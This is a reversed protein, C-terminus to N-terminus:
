FYKDASGKTDRHNRSQDFWHILNYSRKWRSALKAVASMLTSLLSPIYVPEQSKKRNVDYQASQMIGSMEYSLAELAEYMASIHEPKCRADYSTSLYEGIVWVKVLYWYMYMLFIITTALLMHLPFPLFKCVYLIEVYKTSHSDLTFRMRQWTHNGYVFM